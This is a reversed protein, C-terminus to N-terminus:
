LPAFIRRLYGPNPTAFDLISAAIGFTTKRHASFAGDSPVRCFGSIAM